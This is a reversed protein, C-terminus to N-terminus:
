ALDRHLLHELYNPTLVLQRGECICCAPSGFGKVFEWKLEFDRTARRLAAVFRETLFRPDDAYIIPDDPTNSMPLDGIM